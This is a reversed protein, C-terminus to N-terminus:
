EIMFQDGGVSVDMRVRAKHHLEVELEVLNVM